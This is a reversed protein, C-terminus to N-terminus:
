TAEASMMSSPTVNLDLGKSGVRPPEMVYLGPPPIVGAIEKVAVFALVEKSMLMGAEFAGPVAVMTPDIKQNTKEPDVVPVQVRVAFRASLLETLTGNEPKPKESSLRESLKTLKVRVAVAAPVSASPFRDVSKVGAVAFGSAIVTKAM